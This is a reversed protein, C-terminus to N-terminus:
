VRIIEVEAEYILDLGARRGVVLTISIDQSRDKPVFFNLCDTTDADSSGLREAFIRREWKWQESSEIAWPLRKILNPLKGSPMSSMKYDIEKSRREIMQKDDTETANRKGETPSSQDTRMRKCRAMHEQEEVSISRDLNKVFEQFKECAKLPEEDKLCHLSETVRSPIQDFIAKLDGLLFDFTSDAMVTPHIWKSPQLTMAWKLILHPSQSRLRECRTRSKAKRIRSQDTDLASQDPGRFILVLNKRLLVPDFKDAVPFFRIQNAINREKDKPTAKELLLEVHSEIGALAPKLRERLKQIEDFQERNPRINSSLKPGLSEM